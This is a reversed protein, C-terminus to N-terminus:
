REFMAEFQEQIQYGIASHHRQRNYDVEIYEFIAKLKKDRSPLM